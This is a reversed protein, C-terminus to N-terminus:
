LNVQSPNRPEVPPILRIRVLEGNPLRARRPEARRRTSNTSNLRQHRRTIEHTPSNPTPVSPKIHSRLDRDWPQEVIRVNGSIENDQESSGNSIAPVVNPLLIPLLNVDLRGHELVNPQLASANSPM